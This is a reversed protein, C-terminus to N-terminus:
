GKYAYGAIKERLADGSSFEAAGGDPDIFRGVLPEDSDIEVITLLAAEDPFADEGLNQEQAENQKSVAFAAEILGMLEDMNYFFIPQTRASNRCAVTGVEYETEGEDLRRSHAKREREDEKVKEVYEKTFLYLDFVVAM